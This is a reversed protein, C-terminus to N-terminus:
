SLYTQSRCINLLMVVMKDSFPM